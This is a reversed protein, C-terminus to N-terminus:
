AQKERELWARVDSEHDDHFHNFVEGAVYRQANLWVLYFDPEIHEIGVDDPLGEIITLLQQYNQQSEDLVERLSRGRNSDYIWANIEDDTELDAPWPPAPEPEGRVAAQLRNVLNRNWGTLHAAIDKMTWDGNVGPTEMRAPGIEDLLAQWQEYEKQLWKLLDSKTM